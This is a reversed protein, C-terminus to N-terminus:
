KLKSLYKRIVLLDDANLEEVFRYLFTARARSSLEKYRAISTSFNQGQGESNFLPNEEPRHKRKFEIILVAFNYLCVVIIVAIIGVFISTFDM